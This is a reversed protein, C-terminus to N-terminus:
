TMWKYINIESLDAGSHMSKNPQTRAAQHTQRQIKIFVCLLLIILIMAVAISRGERKIGLLRRPIVFFLSWVCVLSFFWDTREENPDILWYKAESFVHKYGVCLFQRFFCFIWQQLYCLGFWNCQNVFMVLSKTIRLAFFSYIFYFNFFMAKLKWEIWLAIAFFPTKKAWKNITIIIIIVNKERKKRRRMKLDRRM